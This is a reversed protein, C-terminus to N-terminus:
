LVEEILFDNLHQWTNFSKRVYENKNPAYAIDGLINATPHTVMDRTYVTIRGRTNKLRYVGKNVKSFKLLLLNSKLELLTM